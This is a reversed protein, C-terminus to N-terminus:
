RQIATVGLTVFDAYADAWDMFEEMTHFISKLPLKRGSGKFYELFNSLRILHNSAAADQVGGEGGVGSQGRM